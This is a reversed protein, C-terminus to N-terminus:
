DSWRADPSESFRTRQWNWEQWVRPVPLLGPPTVTPAKPLATPLPGQHIINPEVFEKWFPIKVSVGCSQYTPTRRGVEFSSLRQDEHSFILSGDWDEPDDPKPDANRFQLAHAPKGCVPCKIPINWTLCSHAVIPRSATM